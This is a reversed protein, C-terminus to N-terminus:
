ETAKAAKKIAAALQTNNWNKNVEVDLMSALDSLTEKYEKAIDAPKMGALKETLSVDGEVTVKGKPQEPQPTAPKPRSARPANEKKKGRGHKAFAPHDAAAAFSTKETSVSGVGLQGSLKASLSLSFHAAAEKLKLKVLTMAGNGGKQLADAEQFANEIASELSSNNAM